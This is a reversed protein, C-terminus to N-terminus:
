GNEEELKKKLFEELALVAFTSKKMYKRECYQDIREDLEYSIAFSVPKVKKVRKEKKVPPAIPKLEPEQEPEPETYKSLVSRRPKSELPPSSLKTDLEDLQSLNINNNNSM